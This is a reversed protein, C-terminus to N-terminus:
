ARLERGAKRVTRDDSRYREVAVDGHLAALGRTRDACHDAAPERVDHEHGDAHGEVVRGPPGVGMDGRSGRRRGRPPLDVGGVESMRPGIASGFVVFYLSTTLVPTVFSQVLTRSARAMEFRYIAWVAHRNFAAEGRRFISVTSM